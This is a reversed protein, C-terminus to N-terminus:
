GTPDLVTSLTVEPHRRVRKGLGIRFLTVPYKVLRKGIRQASSDCPIERTKERTALTVVPHRGPRKRPSGCIYYMTGIVYSRCEPSIV